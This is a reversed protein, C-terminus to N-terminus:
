PRIWFFLRANSLAVFVGGITLFAMAGGAWDRFPEPPNLAVIFILVIWVAVAIHTADWRPPPPARRPSLRIGAGTRM